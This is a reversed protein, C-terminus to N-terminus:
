RPAATVRARRTPWRRRRADPPPPASRRARRAGGRRHADGRGVHRHRERQHVGSPVAQGLRRARRHRRRHRRDRRPPRHLDRRRRDLGAMAAGAGPLGVRGRRLLLDRGNAITQSTPDSTVAPASPPPQVVATFTNGPGPVVLNLATTALGCNKLNPITYTSSFTSAGTLNATGAMTVSVPQSTTCTDGVVNVTPTATPYASVITIDFVATASVGFTAVDLTGAVPQREVIQMNATVLGFGALNLTMQAPPLTIDGTLAGTTLDIVGTFTGTPVAVDQNLKKLHTTADVVYDFPFRVDRVKVTATDTTAPHFADRASLTATYDGETSCTITTVLANADAFTCRPDSATWHATVPDSEADPAAGNLHIAALTDGSVDPGADTVPALDEHVTVTTTDSVPAGGDDATLTATFTGLAACTVTTAAAAPDAFDCSPANITWRSTPSHGPDSVLGDLAIAHGVTGSVSPGADVVLAAPQTIAVRTTDSM